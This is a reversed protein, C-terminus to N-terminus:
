LNYITKAAKSAIDLVPAVAAAGVTATSTVAKATNATTSAVKTNLADKMSTIAQLQEAKAAERFAPKSIYTKGKETLTIYNNKNDISVLGDKSAMQFTDKVAAKLEGDLSNIASNPLLKNNDFYCLDTIQGTFVFPLQESVGVASSVKPAAQTQKAVSGYIKKATNVAKSTANVGSRITRILEDFEEDM